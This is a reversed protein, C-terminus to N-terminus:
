GVNDSLVTSEIQGLQVIGQETSGNKMVNSSIVCAGVDKCVISYAPSFVGTGGDDQGLRCVNASVVTNECNELYVHSNEYRDQFPIENPKGSRRFINGTVTIDSIAAPFRGALCIAPGGSRDFFNNNINLSNGERLVIGNQKNWEIRNGTITLSACVSPQEPSADRSGIGAGSNTHIICDHIWGDWGNVFIGDGGNSMLQCDCVTFAFIRNLHIGDGSFNKCQCDEIVFNDERFDAHTPELLPNDDGEGGDFSGGNYHPWNVMIGHVCDGLLRNGNLQLGKVCTGFAGTMDLLCPATGDGLILVSGGTERYGWGHFGILSVSPRLQIRGCLYRGPPVMVAGKVAAAEDVAAQIAATCDTVGDGVAGFETIDFVNKM